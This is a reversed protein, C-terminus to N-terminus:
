IVFIMKDGLRIGSFVNNFFQFCFKILMEKITSISNKM